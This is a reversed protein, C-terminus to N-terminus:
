PWASHWVHSRIPLSEHHRSPCFVRHRFSGVDGVTTGVM